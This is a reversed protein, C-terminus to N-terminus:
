ASTSVRTKSQLHELVIRKVYRVSRGDKVFPIGTGAWRDREYKATSQNTYAAVQETTALADLPLENFERALEIRSKQPKAARKRTVRDLTSLHSEETVTAMRKFESFRWGTKPLCLFVL